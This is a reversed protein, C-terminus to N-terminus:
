QLLLALTLTYWICADADKLENEFSDSYIEFNECPVAKLKGSDDTSGPPVPTHRRSVGIISTIAPNTLAQRVLETGVFGSSGGIILKM